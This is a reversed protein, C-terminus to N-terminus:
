QIWTSGSRRPLVTAFYSIEKVPIRRLDLYRYKMRLEEGGDTEDEITFPPLESRNLINLEEVGIEIEGTPMRLNKNSRERVVGKAQVVFERGLKRAKECLNSNTEMNFLLQTIGYRDRLDIWIVGGKDRIRQIWGCLVVNQNLYEINLNGCTNNRFM